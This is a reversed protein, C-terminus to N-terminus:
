SSAGLSFNITVASDQRRGGPAFRYQEVAEVAARDFVDDPEASLVRVNAVTGDTNVTFAVRVSGEIRRSRAILPYRPPPKRLLRPATSETSAPASAPPPPAAPAAAAPAAAVAPPTAKEPAPAAAPTEEPPERRDATALSEAAGEAAVSATAQVAQKTAEAAAAEQERAERELTEQALQQAKEADGLAAALRPLAPARPASRTMLDFLRHAEDFDGAAIAQECAILLYPQMDIIAAQTTADDPDRERAALWHDIASNGAPTYMRGERMARAARAGLSDAASAPADTERAPMAARAATEVPAEPSRSGCAALLLVVSIAAGTRM